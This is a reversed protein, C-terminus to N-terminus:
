IKRWEVKSNQKLNMRIHEQEIFRKLKAKVDLVNKACWSYYLPATDAWFQYTYEYEAKLKKGTANNELEYFRLFKFGHKEPNKLEFGKKNRENKILRAILADDKKRNAKIKEICKKDCIINLYGKKKIQNISNQIYKEKRRRINMFFVYHIQELKTLCEYCLKPKDDPALTGCQNLVNESSISIEYYQSTIDEECHDCFIKEKDKKM